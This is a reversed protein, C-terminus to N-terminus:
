RCLAFRPCTGHGYTALALPTTEGHLCGSLSRPLTRLAASVYHVRHVRFRHPQGRDACGRREDGSEACSLPVRKADRAM